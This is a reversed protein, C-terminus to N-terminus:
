GRCARRGRRAASRAAPLEVLGAPDLTLFARVLAPDFQRGALRKIETVARGIPWARKYPRAHTLPM